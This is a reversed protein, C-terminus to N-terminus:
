APSGPRKNSAQRALLDPTLSGHHSVPNLDKGYYGYCSEHHEDEEETAIDWIPLTPLADLGHVM